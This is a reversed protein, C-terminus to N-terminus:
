VNRLGKSRATRIYDQNMVDLMSSRTLQTIIALPRIGLTLAPLILNKLELVRGEFPDIRFLSGHMSLGTFDSWVYGFLWAIIIAAFFSPASIGLIALVMLTGDPWSHKYLAAFVGFLIGFIGAFFLATFALVITGPFAELLIASVKRQTQYSRRLYPYKLVVVSEGVTLLRTYSYNALAGPDDDHFSVPSLDNIYMFFQVHTPRDLGMEKNIAELTAVDARQGMTLRAPDGPLINFLFFVIAVVGLLVLFGYWLRKLIFAIM